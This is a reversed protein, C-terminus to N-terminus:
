VAKTPSALLIPLIVYSNRVTWYPGHVPDTGYGVLQVGHDLTTQNTCGDYVGSDDTHTCPCVCHAHHSLPAAAACQVHRFECDHWTAADVTIALPGLMAVAEMVGAQDNVLKVYGTVTAVRPTGGPKSTDNFSLSSSPRPYCQHSPALSSATQSSTIIHDVYRCKFDQGWYSLYPYTWEEAIGGLEAISQM